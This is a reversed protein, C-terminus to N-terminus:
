KGKSPKRTEQGPRLSKKPQGNDKSSKTPKRQIQQQKAMTELRQQWKSKKVPKAKREEIKRLIEKENIFQKFLFNQGITIVNTLFYYYTLGSSFNNLMFMFMVPMIYMMTKMGPMQSTSTTDSFKMQIITSVTMLITFLSIHNGYLNSLIPIQASWSFISDFTSLDTAWLFAEQRLEISTPFFRFMAFLIPFQLLMPLCGGLPSIGAKKYLAMTAQQKEMEKGKPYKESLEDIQPKLVKMRAQSLYSKYTLPILLLKIIITLCLIIIGFNAIFRSLWDFVPIILFQNIWRIIGRGVSVLDELKLNKYTKLLKFKNPGFFLKLNVTEEPLRQFPIGVEARFNKLYRDTEPLNTSKLLASSFANDAIIVSSFFQNKFAVWQIQTPIDQTSIEKSQKARFFDVDDLHHRFYLSTYQNENKKLQEHQPVYIEWNMDLSSHDRTVIDNMGSLRISFDVMYSGPKLAYRYEIFRNENVALRMIVSSDQVEGPIFYLENTSIPRNQDFFTLGFQTSDGNFLVVPDRKFTKYNKLEVSYPRGGKTSVVMKMVDNEVTYFENKGTANAAFVGFQDAIRIVTTSDGAAEEKMISDASVAALASDAQLLAKQQAQYLSDEYHRRSELEKKGPTQIVGWVILIGAIILIGFISNKDM